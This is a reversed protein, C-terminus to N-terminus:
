RTVESGHIGRKRRLSELLQRAFDSIGSLTGTFAVGSNYGFTMIRAQPLTTPVFDRLWLRDGETWTKFPDGGLGHIAVISSFLVILDASSAVSFDM